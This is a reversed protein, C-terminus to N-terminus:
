THMRYFVVLVNKDGEFRELNVSVGQVAMGSINPAERDQAVAPIAVMVLLCAILLYRTMKINM